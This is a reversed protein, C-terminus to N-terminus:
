WRSELSLQVDPLVAQAATTVEQDQKSDERNSRPLGRSGGYHTPMSNERSNIKRQDWGLKKAEHPTIKHAIALANPNLKGNIM